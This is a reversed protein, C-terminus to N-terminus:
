GMNTSLWSVVLHHHPTLSTYSMYLKRLVCELVDILNELTDDIKRSLRRSIFSPSYHGLILSVSM